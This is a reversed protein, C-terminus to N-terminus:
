NKSYENKTVKKTIQPQRHFAIKPYPQRHNVTFQLEGDVENKTTIILTELNKQLYTSPPQRHNRYVKGFICRKKEIKILYFNKSNLPKEFFPYKM